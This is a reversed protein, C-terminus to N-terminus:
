VIMCIQVNASAAYGPIRAMGYPLTGVPGNSASAFTTLNINSIKSANSLPVYIYGGTRNIVLSFALDATTAVAPATSSVVTFTSLNIKTVRSYNTSGCYAYAGPGDIVISADPYGTALSSTLTFTSLNIKYLNTGSTDCVVYLYTGTPDIAVQQGSNGISLTASVAFTSLNIQSITNAGSNCVYGYTGTPDIAMWTPYSGVTLTSVVTFTSVAIKSVSNSGYNVAYLYTGTPDLVVCGAQYQVTITSVTTFTSLNIQSVYDAGSGLHTYFGVYAYTGTSDVVVSYPYAYATTLRATETLSPMDIKSLATGHFDTVYLSDNPNAPCTLAVGATMWQASVASSWNPSYATPNAANLYYATLMTTYAYAPPSVYTFGSSSGSLSTLTSGAQSMVGFYLEASNTPTLSEMNGSAAAGTLVSQGYTDASWAGLTSSHFQQVVLGADAGSFTAAVTLTSSGTATVVGWWIGTFVGGGAYLTVLNWTTVGGGSPAMGSVQGSPAQGGTLVVMVDGIATPTVTVSFSGSSKQQTVPSGVATITM